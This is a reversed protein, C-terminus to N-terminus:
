NIYKKSIRTWKSRQRSSLIRAIKENRERVYTDLSEDRKRVDSERRTRIIQEYFKNNVELIDGCQSPSLHLKDKWIVPDYLMFDISPTNDAKSSFPLIVGLFLAVISCSLLKM